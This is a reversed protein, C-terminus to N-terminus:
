PSAALIEAAVRQGSEVAGEMYGSWREATETGAWHLRGVPRRLVPGLQTWAGPPMHAGYCGRSWEESQWDHDLYHVPTAANPGFFRTFCDIVTRRRLEPDAGLRLARRGELFGLLVGPHGSPPSNDFVAVVPGAESYVQGSRGEDRWFPRDYVAMCKIVAGMPMRQLLQDRAGPLAPAYDIRGALTPPIAVVARRAEVAGADTTAIVRDARQELRRVPARLRVRDGLAAALGEPIRQTGGVVRDQQAGGTVRLLSELGGGAHLYFLVHLLSLNEAETAFIGPAFHRLFARGKRTHLNRGIWSQFTQADWSGARSATWPRDLPVQKAMRDLARVARYLDALGVPGLPFADGHFPKLEGGFELLHEGDDRTPFTQLGLGAVLDLMHSQDPGIWQGGVEVVEGGIDANLVRGGVRDRAEFVVVELGSAVLDRAAVLGALGAGVVVVDSSATMALRVQRHSTPAADM